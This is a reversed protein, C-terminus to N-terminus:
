APHNFAVTCVFDLLFWFDKCAGNRSGAPSLTGIVFDSTDDNHMPLMSVLLPKACNRGLVIEIIQM